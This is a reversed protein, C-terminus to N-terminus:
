KAGSSGGALRRRFLPVPREVSSQYADSFDGFASLAEEANQDERLLFSDFGCSAMAFLHDRVVVGIARLEGKYGYRERLLRAISYGRGDGFQPFNVAVLAFRELEGAIAAPDEHSDLWVGVRGARSSLAERQKLWVALPVVVDGDPPVQAASDDAAPKLLQWSDAVVQRQRIVIAM